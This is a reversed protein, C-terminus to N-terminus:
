DFSRNRCLTPAVLTWTYLCICLLESGIKAWMAAEGSDTAESNSGQANTISWSTLLMALYGSGLAMMLHFFSFTSAAEEAEDNSRSSSLTFADRSQGANTAAYVLSGCSVITAIVLQATSSSNGPNCPGSPIGSTLASYSTWVTYLFVIASPLLSGHEVAVSLISYVFAAIITVSLIGQGTSCSSNDGFWKFFFSILVLAIIYAAGTVLLLGYLYRKSDQAKSGWSDNWRYCAEILVLLQAVLYIVSIALAFWAYGSFFSNPIAFSVLLLAVLVITRIIIHPKNLAVRERATCCLNYKHSVLYHFLFFVFLTFSIRYAGQNRVCAATTCGGDKEIAWKTIWVSVGNRMLIGLLFGAALFGGFAARVGMDSAAPTNVEERPMEASGAAATSWPKQSM